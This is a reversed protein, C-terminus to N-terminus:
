HKYETLVIRGLGVSGQLMKLLWYYDWEQIGVLVWRPTATLHKDQQVM